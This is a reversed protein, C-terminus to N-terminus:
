GNITLAREVTWGRSLRKGILSNLVGLEEAWAALPKSQGRFTLIRNNKLNRAQEKPTAWRCNGPEYIGAGDIRDLSHGSPREGMDQLFATFVHWQECVRVGNAGYRQYATSSPCYCRDMMARWSNYTPSRVTKGNAGQTHGHHAYKVHNEM